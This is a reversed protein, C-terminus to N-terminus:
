HVLRENIINLKAFEGHLEIVKKNYAVAAETKSNFGGIYHVKYHCKTKAIWKKVTGCWHVGKFGSTNNSVISSNAGNQSSTAYRLNLRRNNLPNSDKHDIEITDPIPAMLYRSLYVLKTKIKTAVYGKALYWKFGKVIEIDIADIVAVAKNNMSKTYLQIFCDAGDVVFENPDYITRKLVKGHNRFQSAHKGCYGHSEHKKGCGDVQCIRVPKSVKSEAMVDYGKYIFNNTLFPPLDSGETMENNIAFNFM